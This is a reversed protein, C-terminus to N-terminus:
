TGPEGPRGPRDNRDLQRVLKWLEYAFFALAVGVGVLTWLYGGGRRLDLLYGGLVLLLVAGAMSWAM